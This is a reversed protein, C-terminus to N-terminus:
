RARMRALPWTYCGNESFSISRVPSQHGLAATILKPFEGQEEEEKGPFQAVNAQEKLDWIKVVSSSGGTGFILGDPHFQSCFLNAKM